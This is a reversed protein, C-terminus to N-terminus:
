AFQPLLWDGPADRFRRDFGQRDTGRRRQAAAATVWRSIQLIQQQQPQFQLPQSSGVNQRFFSTPL